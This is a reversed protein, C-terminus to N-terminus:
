QETRAGPFLMGSVVSAVMGSARRQAASADPTGLRQQAEEVSKAFADESADADADGETTKDQDDHAATNVPGGAAPQAELEKVREQAKELEERNADQAKQLDEIQRDKEALEDDKQEITQELRDLRETVAKLMDDGEGQASDGANGDEDEGGKAVNGEAADPPADAAAGESEAGQSDDGEGAPPEAQPPESKAVSLTEADDGEAPAGAMRQIVVNGFDAVAQATLARKDGDGALIARLTTTLTGWLGDMLEWVDQEAQEEALNEMFSVSADSREVDATEDTKQVNEESMTQEVGKTTTNGTEDDGAIATLKAACEECGCAEYLASLASHIREIDAKSHRAGAKELADRQQELVAITEHIMAKQAEKEDGPFPKGFAEYYARLKERVADKDADPIDAQELRAAIAVCARWVARLEGDAVDAFPLKYGGFQDTKEPDHWMFARGFKDWDITDKDGSGDSSAWAAVRGQAEARDWPTDEEALPLLRSAAKAVREPWDEGEASKAIVQLWTDPNAAHGPRTVAIHDLVVGDIVRVRRGGKELDYHAATVSGGVSLGYRKGANLREFLRMADPNTPDLQGTVIFQEGEIRGEEVTGLEDLPGAKHSPLLDIGRFACMSELAAKSMREKQRDLATSSAVGEFFMGGADKWVRTFPMEFRFSM